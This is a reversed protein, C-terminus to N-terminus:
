DGIELRSRKPSRSWRELAPSRPDIASGPHTYATHSLYALPGMHNKMHVTFLSSVKREEKLVGAREIVDKLVASWKTAEVILAYTQAANSKLDKKGFIRSKLSGGAQDSPTLLFAAEYYLSM